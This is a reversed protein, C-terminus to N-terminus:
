TSLVICVFSTNQIFSHIFSHVFLCVQIDANLAIITENLETALEKRDFSEKDMTGETTDSASPPAPASAMLCEKAARYHKLAGRKEAIADTGEEGSQYIHAVALNYHAESLLRDGALCFRERAAM